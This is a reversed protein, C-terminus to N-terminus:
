EHKAKFEKIENMLQEAVEPISLTTTDIVIDFNNPNFADVGYVDKYRKTDTEQRILLQKKLDKASEYGEGENRNESNDELDKFIRKSAEDLDCTIFLKISDPILTFSVRGEILFDDEKKGLDVQYQDIEKEAEPNNELSILFEQLTMDKEKAVDRFIQGMYYRKFGLKEAIIKGVTSKGSGPTGTITIIM